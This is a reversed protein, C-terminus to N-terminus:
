HSIVHLPGTVTLVSFEKKLFQFYIRPAMVEHIPKDQTVIGKLYPESHLSDIEM